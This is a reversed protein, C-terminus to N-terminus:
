GLDGGDQYGVRKHVLQPGEFDLWVGERFRSLRLLNAMPPQPKGVERVMVLVHGCVFDVPQEAGIFEDKYYLPLKADKVYRIGRSALEAALAERCAAAPRADLGAHVARAAQVITEATSPAAAVSQARM